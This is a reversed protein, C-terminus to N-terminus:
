AAKDKLSKPNRKEAEKKTDDSQNARNKEFKAKNEMAKRQSNLESKHQLKKSSMKTEENTQNATKKEPPYKDFSEGSTRGGDGAGSEVKDQDHVEFLEEKFEKPISEEQINRSSQNSKKENLGKSNKWRIPM